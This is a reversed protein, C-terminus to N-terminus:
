PFKLIIHIYFSKLNTEHGAVLENIQPSVQIWSSILNISFSLLTNFDDMTTQNMVAYYYRISQIYIYM